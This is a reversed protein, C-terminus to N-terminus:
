AKMLVRCPIMKVEAVKSGAYCCAAVIWAEGRAALGFPRGRTPSTRKLSKSMESERFDRRALAPKTVGVGTWALAMGGARSPLSMRAVAEVPGPLVRRKRIGM